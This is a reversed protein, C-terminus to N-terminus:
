AHTVCTTIATVLLVTACLLFSVIAAPHRSVISLILFFITLILIGMTAYQARYSFVEPSPGPAKPLANPDGDNRVYGIVARHARLYEHHYYFALLSLGGAISLMAACSLIPLVVDHWLSRSGNPHDASTPTSQQNM